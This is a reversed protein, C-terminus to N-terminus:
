SGKGERTTYYWAVDFCVHACGFPLSFLYRFSLLGCVSMVPTIPERAFKVPHRYQALRTTSKIAHRFQAIHWPEVGVIECLVGVGRYPYGLEVVRSFTTYHRGM